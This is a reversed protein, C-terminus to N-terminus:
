KNLVKKGNVIVIGKYDKGVRQGSLNYVAQSEDISDVVPVSEIGVPLGLHLTLTSYRMLPLWRRIESETGLDHTMNANMSTLDMTIDEADPTLHFTGNQLYFMLKNDSKRYYYYTGDLYKEEIVTQDFYPEWGESESIVSLLTSIYFDMGSVNETGAVGNYINVRKDGLDERGFRLPGNYRYGVYDIYGSEYNVYEGNENLYSQIETVFSFGMYDPITSNEDECFYSGDFNLEKVGVLPFAWDQNTTKKATVDSYTVNLISYPEGYIVDRPAYLKVPAFDTLNLTVDPGIHIAHSLEDTSTIVTENYGNQIGMITTNANVVIADDESKLSSYGGDIVVVLGDIGPIGRDIDGNAIVHKGKGTVEHNMIRHLHLVKNGDYKAFCHTMYETAEMQDNWVVKQHNLDTVQQGMVWLPYRHNLTLYGPNDAGGDIHAYDAETYNADYTTGKGGKLNTCGYFMMFANSGVNEMTWTDDVYITRLNKCGNFMMGTQTVSQTDFSSLDLTYINECGCFMSRMDTVKRTDFYTLDVVDINSNSFLEHMNTVESTNLYEWGSFAYEHNYSSYNLLNSFSYFWHELSTPRYDAFSADFKVRQCQTKMPDTYDDYWQGLSYVKDTRDNKLGDYYFTLTKNSETYAAYAEKKETPVITVWEKYADDYYRTMEDEDVYNGKYWMECSGDDYYFYEGYYLNYNYDVNDFKCYEMQFDNFDYITAEQANNSYANLTSHDVVMDSGTGCIASNRGRVMVNADKLKLQGTMVMIADNYNSTLTLKGKGTITVNCGRFYLCEDGCTMKSDSVVDITLNKIQIDGPVDGSRTYNCIGYLENGQQGYNAGDLTITRTDPNFKVTGDGLVDNKNADTVQIDNVWLKYTSAQAGTAIAMLAILLTFIKKM